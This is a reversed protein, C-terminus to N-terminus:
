LEIFAKLSFRRKSIPCPPNQIACEIEYDAWYKACPQRWADGIIRAAVSDPNVPNCSYKDIVGSSELKTKVYEELTRFAECTAFQLAYGPKYFRQKCPTKQDCEACAAPNQMRM